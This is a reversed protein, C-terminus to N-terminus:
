KEVIVIENVYGESDYKCKVSYYNKVDILKSVIFEIDASSTAVGTYNTGDSNSANINVGIQMNEDNRNHVKVNNLLMKINSGRVNDKNNYAEWEANFQKIATSSLDANKVTDSASSYLDTDWDALIDNAQKYMNEEAERQEDTIRSERENHDVRDLIPTSYNKIM